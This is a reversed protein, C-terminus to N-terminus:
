VRPGVVKFPHAETSYVWQNSGKYNADWVSDEAQILYCYKLVEAFLFSEQNDTKKGGGPANVDTIASFGSATRTTANIAVFADWAWDQYKRDGTVRYAYYYSEIVEPRLDYSAVSNYFGNKKYFQEQGRPIASANWGFVEPGIRTKTSTYTNHCSSTLALGFDIYKKQRLVQGALLFNGGDFCALHQSEYILRRGDYEALYTLDPRSSPHSAIHAISSDAAKIWEDKYRGFRRTDYVYMKILYEYFSDDGGVWGGFADTFHGNSLNVNTGVLGPWPESSAPKVPSLLYSEGKQALDAYTKNGTIDALRTWELVLTGITALGNTTSGDTSRNNFYLNNSPVGSPTDFAFSLYNALNKSQTLLADVNKKDKALHALPGTLFDYGSLMGGLYRITTEFLSVQENNISKSYDIKPIYALIQNVIDKQMHALSAYRPNSKGNTVPTLEDAPFAYKYYGGWAHRFAEIVADARQKNGPLGPGPYSPPGYTAQEVPAALTSQTVLCAVSAIVIKM